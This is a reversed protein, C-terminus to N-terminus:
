AAKGSLFKPLIHGLIVVSNGSLLYVSLRLPILGRQEKAIYLRM